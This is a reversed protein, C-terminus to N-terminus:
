RFLTAPTVRGNDKPGRFDSMRSLDECAEQVLPHAPYDAFPVDRLLAHWYLEVLEGGQEASAFRPAPPLSLQSSDCGVLDYAFAPQPEALHAFGRLPVQELREADGARLAAILAHIAAPDGIGLRNHPLGKTFCAAFEPIADDDGNGSSSRSPLRR